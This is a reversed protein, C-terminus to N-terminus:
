KIMPFILSAGLLVILIVTLVKGVPHGHNITWGIGFRKEVWLTPDEPNYYLMGLKWYRDDDRAILKPNLNEQEEAKVKIRSGGQGTMVSVTIVLAIISGTMLMTVLMSKSSDVLQLVMLQTYLLQLNILAAMIVTFISWRRNAIQGQLLSTKPKAPNITIRAVRLVKFIGFMMATMGLQVLPISFVSLLSKNDYRTVEGSANFHGPIRDPLYPYQIMSFLVGFILIAVPILFWWYSIALENSRKQTEVIVVQKKDIIWGEEQKLKKAKLHIYYYNASLLIVYIFSLSILFGENGTRNFGYAILLSAGANSLCYNIFYKNKLLRLSNSSSKDEPINVGFFLTKKSLLPLILGILFIPIYVILLTFLIM